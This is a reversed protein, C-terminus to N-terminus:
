RNPEATITGGSDVVYAHRAGPRRYRILPVTPGTPLTGEALMVYSADSARKIGDHMCHEILQSLTPITGNHWDAYDRVWFLMSFLYGTNPPDRRTPEDGFDLREFDGLNGRIFIALHRVFDSARDLIVKEHREWDDHKAMFDALDDRHQFLSAGGANKEEARRAEDAMSSLHWM